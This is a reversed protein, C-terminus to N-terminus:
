AFVRVICDAFTPGDPNFREHIKHGEFMYTNPDSGIQRRKDVAQSEPFISKMVADRDDTVCENIPERM